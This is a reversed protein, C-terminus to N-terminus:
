WEILLHNSRNLVFVVKIKTLCGLSYKIFHIFCNEGLIILDSICSVATIFDFFIPFFVDMPAKEKM